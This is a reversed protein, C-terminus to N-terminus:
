ICLASYVLIAAV